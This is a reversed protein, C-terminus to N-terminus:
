LKEIESKVVKYFIVRRCEMANGGNNYELEEIILNVAILASRVVGITPVTATPSYSKLFLDVIRKAEIQAETM